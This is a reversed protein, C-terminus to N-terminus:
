SFNTSLSAYYIGGIFSITMIDTANAGTSLTSTGGAFLMRGASDLDESFTRNGTGDQHIILTLTQGDKANAFGQFNVNGTLTIEQINGNTSVDPTINAAYPFDFVQERYKIEADINFQDSTLNIKDLNETSGASDMNSRFELNNSSNINTAYHNITFNQADIAFGHNVVGASTGGFVIQNQESELRLDGTTGGLKTIKFDTGRSSGTKINFTATDLDASLPNTVTGAGSDIIFPRGSSDANVSINPGVSAVELRSNTRNYVLLSFEDNDIGTTDVFDVIDNVAQSMTNLEPRSEKISDTDASFKNSDPKNTPWAM